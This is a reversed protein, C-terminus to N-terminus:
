EGQYNYVTKFIEDKLRKFDSETLLGNSTMIMLEVKEGGVRYSPQFYSFHNLVFGLREYFGIRRRALDDNPPEVELILPKTVSQMFENFISNGLGLNRYQGSVAFHEIFFHSNLQWYGMFAKIKEPEDHFTKVNFKPNRFQLIYDERDKRECEPFSEVMIQWIADFQSISNTDSKDQNM